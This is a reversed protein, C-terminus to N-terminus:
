PALKSFWGASTARSASRCASSPLVGSVSRATRSGRPEARREPRRSGYGRVDTVAGLAVPRHSRLGSRPPPPVRTRSQRPPASGAPVNTCSRM